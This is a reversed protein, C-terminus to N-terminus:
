HEWFIHKSERPESLDIYPQMLLNQYYTMFELCQIGEIQLLEILFLDKRNAGKGDEFYSPDMEVTVKRLCPLMARTMQCLGYVDSNDGNRWRWWAYDYSHLVLHDVGPFVIGTWWPVKNDNGGAQKFKRTCLHAYSFQDMTLTRIESCQSAASQLFQNIFEAM